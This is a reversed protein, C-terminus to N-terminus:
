VLVAKLMESHFNQVDNETAPRCKQNKLTLGYVCDSFQRDKEGVFPEAGLLVEVFSHDRMPVLWALMAKRLQRVDDKSPAGLLFRFMMADSTTGSPGATEPAGALRVVRSPSLIEMDKSDDATEGINWVSWDIQYAYSGGQERRECAEQHIKPLKAYEATECFASCVPNVEADVNGGAERALETEVEAVKITAYPKFPNAGPTWTHAKPGTTIKPDQWSRAPRWGDPKKSRCGNQNLGPLPPFNMGAWNAPSAVVLYPNDLPIKWSSKWQKYESLNRFDRELLSSPYFFVLLQIFEKVAITKSMMVYFGGFVKRIDTAEWNDSHFHQFQIPITIVRPSTPIAPSFIYWTVIGASMESMHSAM